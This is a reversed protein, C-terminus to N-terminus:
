FDVAIRETSFPNLVTYAEDINVKLPQSIKQNIKALKSMPVAAFFRFCLRPSGDPFIALREDGDDSYCSNSLHDFRHASNERWVWLALYILFGRLNPLVYFHGAGFILGDARCSYWCAQQFLMETKRVLSGLTLGLDIQEITFYTIRTSKLDRMSNLLMQRHENLMTLSRNISLATM